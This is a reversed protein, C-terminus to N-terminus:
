GQRMALAEAYLAVHRRAADEWGLAEAMAAAQMRPWDTTSAARTDLSRQVARNFAAPTAAEVTFGTAGEAVMEALAGVARM